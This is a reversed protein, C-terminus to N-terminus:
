HLLGSAIGAAIGDAMKQQWAEDLMNEADTQNTLFGVEVLIAPCKRTNIVVFTDHKSQPYVKPKKGPLLNYIADAMKEAYGATKESNETCYYLRTGNVSEDGFSNCHVSIFFDVYELGETMERRAYKNFLYGAPKGAPIANTDHTMIVECGADELAKKLKLSIALNIDMEALPSILESTSGGDAFGHGPDVVVIPKGDHPQSPGVPVTGGTQADTEADTAPTETETSGSTAEEPETGIASATETGGTGSSTGTGDASPKKGFGGSLAVCCIVVMAVVAVASLLLVAIMGTDPRRKRGGPNKGSRRVYAQPNRIREQRSGQGSVDQRMYRPNGGRPNGSQPNRAAPRPGPGGSGRNMGRNDPMGAPRGTGTRHGDRGNGRNNGGTNQMMM